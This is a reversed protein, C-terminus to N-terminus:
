DNNKQFAENAAKDCYLLSGLGVTMATFAVFSHREHIQEILKKEFFADEGRRLPQVLLKEILWEMVAYNM